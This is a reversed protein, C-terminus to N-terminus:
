GKARGREMLLENQLNQVELKLQAIELQYKCCLKCAEHIADHYAQNQQADELVSAIVADTAKTHEAREEITTKM